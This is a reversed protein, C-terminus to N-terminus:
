YTGYKGKEQDEVIKGRDLYIVRRSLTNVIEANHTAMLVTTGAKHIEDLLSIIGWATAPDLDATPEDALIIDPQGALARAITTRQLEGGSLQQPFFNEKGSLGVRELVESVEEAIDKENRGMVELTLSVNEWLTRDPLLKYDQFIVGIKRRLQPVKSATIKRLNSKDVTISGATPLLDRTILRLLTTKGAGSPGIVFVFEKDQIEFDIDSLAITGDPFKKTVKEFK